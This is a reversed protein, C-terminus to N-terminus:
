GNIVECLDGIEGDGMCAERDNCAIEMIEAPIEKTHQWLRLAALIQDREIDTFSFTEHSVPDAADEDLEETLDDLIDAHDYENIEGTAVWGEEYRDTYALQAATMADPAEFDKEYILYADHGKRVRFKPM